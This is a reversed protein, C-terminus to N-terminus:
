EILLQGTWGAARTYNVRQASVVPGTWIGSAERGSLGGGPLISCFVARPGKLRWGLDVEPKRPMGEPLVVGLDEEEEPQAAVVMAPQGSSKEKCEKEFQKVSLEHNFARRNMIKYEGTDEDLSITASRRLPSPVMIWNAKVLSRLTGSKTEQRNPNTRHREIGQTNALSQLRRWLPEVGLDEYCSIRGNPLEIKNALSLSTVVHDLHEAEIPKPIILDDPHPFPSVKPLYLPQGRTSTVQNTAESRVRRPPAAEKSQASHFADFSFVMRRRRAPPVRPADDSDNDERKRKQGQANDSATEVATQANHEQLAPNQKGEAPSDAMVVDADCPQHKSPPCPPSETMVIDNAESSPKPQGSPLVSSSNLVNCNPAIVGASKRTANHQAAKRISAAKGRTALKGKTDGKGKTAVKSQTANKEEVKQGKGKALSPMPLLRLGAPIKIPRNWCLVPRPADQLMYRSPPLAQPIPFVILARKRKAVHIPWFRRAPMFWDIPHSKLNFRELLSARWEM